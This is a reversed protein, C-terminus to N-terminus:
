GAGTGDQFPPVDLRVVVHAQLPHCQCAAVRQVPVGVQQMLTPEADGRRVATMGGVEHVMHGHWGVVAPRHCAGVLVGAEVPRFGPLEYVGLQGAQGAFGRRWGRVPTLRTELQLPCRGDALREPLIAHVAQTFGTPVHGRWVEQRQLTM